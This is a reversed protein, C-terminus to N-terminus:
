QGFVKVRDEVPKTTKDMPGGVPTGFVLQAKPKWDAPLKYDEKIKEVFPPLFHYHQLSAGLGEAELATWVTESPNTSQKSFLTQSPSFTGALQHMGSSTDSWETIFPAVVAHQQALATLDNDSEFFM